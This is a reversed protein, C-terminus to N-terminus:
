QIPSAEQMSQVTRRPTLLIPPAASVFGRAWWKKGTQIGRTREIEYARKKDILAICIFCRQAVLPKLDLCVVMFAMVAKLATIRNPMAM